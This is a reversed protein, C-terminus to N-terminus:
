NLSSDNTNEDNDVDKTSDRGGPSKVHVPREQVMMDGEKSRLDAELGEIALRLATDHEQGTEFVAFYKKSCIQNHTYSTNTSKANSITKRTKYPKRPKWQSLSPAEQRIVMGCPLYFDMKARKGVGTRNSGCGPCSRRNGACYYRGLAHSVDCRWAHEEESEQREFYADEPLDQGHEMTGSGSPHPGLDPKPQVISKPDPKKPILKAQLHDLVARAGNLRAEHVLAGEDIAKWYAQKAISNHSSGFNQQGSERRRSPRWTTDPDPQHFYTRPPMYFDMRKLKLNDRVHTNCGHCTKRDGANYYHGLAHRIGCRWALKEDLVRAEFYANPPLIQHDELSQATHSPSLHAVTTNIRRTALDPGEKGPVSGQQDSVSNINNKHQTRSKRKVMKPPETPEEWVSIAMPSEQGGKGRQWAMRLDKGVSQEHKVPSSTDQSEKRSYDSLRQFQEYAIGPLIGIMPVKLIARDMEPLVHEYIMLSGKAREALQLKHKLFLKARWSFKQRGFGYHIRGAPSTCRENNGKTQLSKHLDQSCHPSSPPPHSSNHKDCGPVIM